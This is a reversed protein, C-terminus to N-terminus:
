ASLVKRAPAGVQNCIDFLEDVRRACSHRALVAARGNGAITAAHGPQDLLQRILAAMEAGDRAVLFDQGPHFLAESDQWPASILPIGCALAEFVRITPIGPLAEVYPRRPIHVTLRAASYALPARYNPIFGAYEIGAAALADLAHEPYRVGFVRARLGLARVPEILFEFIENSREDDGWNGIWIVDVEPSTQPHPSFVRTDAGEHWVFVQKAWGRSQYLDAIVRGFALVGDFTHLDLANMTDPETVSRHHTDHFFLLYGGNHARHEGIRSILEPTNWEHVLVLDAQALATDLDLTETEYFVSKLHPFASRFEIEADEGHDSLLNRRSWSHLPEYVVVDHGRVILETAIGRLFHANGHNWDSILSHYFLIVRM